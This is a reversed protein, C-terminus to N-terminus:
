EKRQSREVCSLSVEKIEGEHEVHLSSDEPNAEELRACEKSYEVEGLILHDLRDGIKIDAKKM